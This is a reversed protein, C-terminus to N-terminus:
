VVTEFISKGDGDVACAHTTEMSLDLEAFYEM